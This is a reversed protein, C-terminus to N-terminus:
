YILDDESKFIRTKYLFFNWTATIALAITRSVVAPVRPSLLKTVLLTFGFNCLVLLCVAVIQLLLIRRHTRKDGFAVFKQLVFSMALGVWFGIGVAWVSSAGLRQALVIVGVELVYVGSGVLLYRVGRKRWLTRVLQLM